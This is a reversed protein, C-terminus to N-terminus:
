MKNGRKKQRVDVAHQKNRIIEEMGCVCDAVKNLIEKKERIKLNVCLFFDDKKSTQRWKKNWNWNFKWKAYKWENEKKQWKKTHKIM